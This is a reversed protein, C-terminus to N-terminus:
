SGNRVSSMFGRFLISLIVLCGGIFAWPGIREGVFFFAWLPNLLPEL